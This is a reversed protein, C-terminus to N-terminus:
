PPNNFDQFYNLETSGASDMRFAIAQGAPCEFSAVNYKQGPILAASQLQEQVAPASAYSTTLMAPAVLRSFSVMGDGRFLYIREPFLFWLNCTLGLSAYPIDFNFISSVTPMITGNYSTGRAVDPAESDIPIILHPFEFNKTLEGPCSKTDNQLGGLSHAVNRPAARNVLPSKYTQSNAGLALLFLVYIPKM